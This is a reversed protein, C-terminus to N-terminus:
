ETKIMNFLRSDLTKNIKNNANCISNLRLLAILRDITEQTLNYDRMLTNCIFSEDISYYENKVFANKLRNEIKEAIDFPLDHRIIETVKKIANPSINIYKTNLSLNARIYDLKDENVENRTMIFRSMVPARKMDGSSISLMGGIILQISIQNLPPHYFALSVIEGFDKSKLTIFGNPTNKSLILKGFYEKNLYDTPITLSVQIYQKYYIKVYAKLLTGPENNQTPFFYFFYEGIYKNYDSSSYDYEFNNYSIEKDDNGLLFDTSINLAKSLAILFNVNPIRNTVYIKLNSKTIIYGVENNLIYCLKDYNLGKCRMIYEVRSFFVNNEFFEKNETKM